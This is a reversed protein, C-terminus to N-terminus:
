KNLIQKQAYDNITIFEKKYGIQKKKYDNM